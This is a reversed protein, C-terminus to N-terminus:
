RKTCKIVQEIGKAFLEDLENLIDKVKFHNEDSPKEMTARCVCSVAGFKKVFKESVKELKFHVTKLHDSDPHKLTNRKGDARGRSSSTKDGQGAM